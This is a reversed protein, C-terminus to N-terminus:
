RNDAFLTFRVTFLDVTFGYTPYTLSYSMAMQHEVKTQKNLFSYCGSIRYEIM